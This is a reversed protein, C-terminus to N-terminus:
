LRREWCRCVYLLTFGAGRYFAHDSGVFATTAGLSACRRIGEWLAARGLGRQRFDPDTAMPEVYAFKNKPEYWMGCFSVFDGSPGEVVITLDKRFNPGSQMKRRGPIGEESPEGPHNFGRWLVRHIKRLNNDEALSKIRFGVPLDIRPFAGPIGLQSLPRDHREELEYGRMRALSESEGDFDNIYARLAREGGPLYGYLNSEAYELLAPKLTAFDPHLQFFAEGLSSEYHAVGVIGDATEWIGIKELSSEDLAPHSHMYEWAPQLWNGDRNGPLFGAVLFDSVRAFDGPGYQRLTPDM